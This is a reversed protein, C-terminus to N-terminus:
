LDLHWRKELRRIVLKATLLYYYRTHDSRQDLHHRLFWDLHKRRWSWPTEQQWRKAIAAQIAKAQQVHRQRTSHSGTLVGALFIDMDFKTNM